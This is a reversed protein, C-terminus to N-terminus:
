PLYGLCIGFHLEAKARLDRPLCDPLDSLGSKLFRRKALPEGRVAWVSKAAYRQRADAQMYTTLKDTPHYDLKLSEERWRTFDPLSSVFNFSGNHFGPTPQPYYYKLLLQANPDLQSPTIVNNPYPVGNPDTIIKPNPGALLASFDGNREAPTAVVALRTGGSQIIRRWEESWFFFLKDKKIPGGVDYGFDNYRNEPVSNAFFNRANLVDNRFFEFANGHFQNTGSRSILNVQGGASRGTVAEYSNNEIRFESVAFLNPTVFANGGFTDLNRIGDIMLNNEDSRVGNLSFTVSSNSGFGPTQDIISSVGPELLVLQTFLRNTLPLDNMQKYTVTNGESATVTNIAVPATSVTVEQTIQGISLSVAFKVPSAAEVSFETQRYAKFGPRTVGLTYRGVPVIAFDFEGSANSRGNLVQGNATNSLTVAADPVAAGSQDVVTGQVSGTSAVQADAKSGFFSLSAIFVFLLFRKQQCCNM